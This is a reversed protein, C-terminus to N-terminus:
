SLRSTDRDLPVDLGVQVLAGVVRPWIRGAPVAANELPFAVDDGVREMVVNGEPEQQVLGIRASSRGPGEVVLTGCDGGDPLTGALASLLTSKGSGSAGMLVVLEGPEITVSVGSLAVASRGPYRFGWGLATIRAGASEGM